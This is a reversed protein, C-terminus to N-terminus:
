KDYTKMKAVDLASYDLETLTDTMSQTKNKEIQIQELRLYIAAIEKEDSIVFNRRPQEVARNRDTAITINIIPEPTYKNYM